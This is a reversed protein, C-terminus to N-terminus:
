FILTQPLFNTGWNPNPNFTTFIPGTMFRSLTYTLLTPSSCQTINWDASFSAMFLISMAPPDASCYFGLTQLLIGSDPTFNKPDPTFNKPNPTFDWHKSYFGLTQLLIWPNPTFNRYPQSYFTFIIFSWHWITLYWPASVDHKHTQVLLTHTHLLPSFLQVTPTFLVYSDRYKYLRLSYM